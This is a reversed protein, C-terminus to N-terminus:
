VAWTSPGRERPWPPRADNLPQRLEPALDRSRPSRPFLAVPKDGQEDGVGRLGGFVRGACPRHALAARPHTHGPTRKRKM